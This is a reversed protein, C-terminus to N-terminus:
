QGAAIAAEAAARIGAVADKTSIQGAYAQTVGAKISDWTAQMEPWAQDTAAYRPSTELEQQFAVVAKQADESAYQVAPAAKNAPLLGFTKAYEAQIDPSTMWNVFATAETLNPSTNFAVLYNGGVNSSAM